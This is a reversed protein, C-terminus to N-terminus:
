QGIFASEEAAGVAGSCGREMGARSRRRAADWLEHLSPAAAPNAAADALNAFGCRITADANAGHETGLV